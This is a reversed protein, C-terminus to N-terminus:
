SSRCSARLLRRLLPRIGDSRVSRPMLGWILAMLSFPPKFARAETESVDHVRIVPRLIYDGAGTGHVQLSHAGDFEVHLNERAGENLAHLTRTLSDADSGVGREYARFSRLELAPEWPLLRM